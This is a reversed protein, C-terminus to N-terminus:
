KVARGRIQPIIPIFPSYSNYTELELKNFGVSELLQKTDRNTHCGEFFWHWPKHILNQIFALMSNDRAKVHEIFIFVGSPKLIRKIQNICAMPSSVTCLVLTSVVFDCSNDPLDISEGVVEKIELHIGYKVASKKLNAHMHINPEIAILKTGVKLYRMNAGTGAGIEIVTEPHNKFLKRKSNGFLIDMYGSIMKFFFANIPGRIANNQFKNEM